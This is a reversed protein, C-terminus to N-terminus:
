QVVTTTTTTCEHSSVAIGDVIHIINCWAGCSVYYGNLPCNTDLDYFTQPNGNAPLEGLNVASWQPERIGGAEVVTIAACGAEISDTFEVVEEPGILTYSDYFDGGILPVVGEPLECSTTTTTTTECLDPKYWLLGDPPNDPEEQSVVLYRKSYHGHTDGM